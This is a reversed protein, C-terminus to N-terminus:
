IATLGGDVALQHGTAFSAANVIASGRQKLMRRIEHKVCLWKGKSM